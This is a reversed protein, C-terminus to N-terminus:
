RHLRLDVNLKITWVPYEAELNQLFQYRYCGGQGVVLTGVPNSSLASADMSATM